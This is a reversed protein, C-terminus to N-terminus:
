CTDIGATLICIQAHPIRDEPRFQAIRANEQVNRQHEWLLDRKSMGKPAGAAGGEGGGGPETDRVCVRDRKCPGRSVCTRPCLYVCPM